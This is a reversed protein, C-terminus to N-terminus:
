ESISDGLDKVQNQYQNLEISIKQKYATLTITEM